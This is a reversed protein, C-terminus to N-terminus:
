KEKNVRLSNIGLDYYSEDYNNRKRYNYIVMLGDKNKIKYLNNFRDKLYIDDNNFYKNLSFKSIMVEENGEVILELNPHKHYRKEYSTILNEIQKKTLEYSLTIRKAGLNHM